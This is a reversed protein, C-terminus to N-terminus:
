AEKWGHETNSTNNYYGSEEAYRDGQSGQLTALAKNFLRNAFKPNFIRSAGLRRYVLGSDATTESHM